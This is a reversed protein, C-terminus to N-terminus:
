ESRFGSDAKRGSMEQMSKPSDVGAFNKAKNELEQAKSAAQNRLEGAKTAGKQELEKARSVVKEQKPSTMYWFGAGM